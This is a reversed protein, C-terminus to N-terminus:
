VFETKLLRSGFALSQSSVSFHFSQGQQQETDQGDVKTHRSVCFGDSNAPLYLRSWHCLLYYHTVRLPSLNQSGPLKLDQAFCFRLRWVLILIPVIVFSPNIKASCAPILQEGGIRFKLGPGAPGAKIRGQGRVFYGFRHIGTM